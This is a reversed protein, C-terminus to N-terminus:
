RGEVADRRVSAEQASSIPTKLLTSDRKQGL